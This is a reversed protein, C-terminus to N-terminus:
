PLNYSEKICIPCSTKGYYGREYEIYYVHKPCYQIFYRLQNEEYAFAAGVIRVVLRKWLPINKKDVFM